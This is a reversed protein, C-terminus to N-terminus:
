KIFIEKGHVVYLLGLIALGIAISIISTTLLETILKKM